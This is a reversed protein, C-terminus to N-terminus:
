NLNNINQDSSM